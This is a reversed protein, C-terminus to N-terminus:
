RSGLWRFFRVVRVFLLWILVAAVLVRHGVVFDRVNLFVCTLSYRLLDFLAPFMERYWAKHDVM